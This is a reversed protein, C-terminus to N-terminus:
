VSVQAESTPTRTALPVDVIGVGERQRRRHLTYAYGAVGLLVVAGIVGGVIAGVNTDKGTKGNAEDIAAAAARQVEKSSLISGFAGTCTDSLRADNTCNLHKGLSQTACLVQKCATVDKKQGKAILDDVTKANDRTTNTCQTPFEKALVADFVRKANMMKVACQMSSCTALMPRSCNPGQTVNTAAIYAGGFCKCVPGFLDNMVKVMVASTLIPQSCATGYELGPIGTVTPCVDTNASPALSGSPTPVPVPPLTAPATTNSAANIGLVAVAAVVLFRFLLSM